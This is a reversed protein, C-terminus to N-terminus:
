AKFFGTDSLMSPDFNALDDMAFVTSPEVLSRSSEQREPTVPWSLDSDSLYSTSNGAYPLLRPDIMSTAICGQDDIKPDNPAALYYPNNRVDGLSPVDGSDALKNIFMVADTEVQQAGPIDEMNYHSTTTRSAGEKTQLGEADKYSKRSRGNIAAHKRNRPLVQEMQAKFRSFRMRAAHGNSIELTEAVEDWDIQM